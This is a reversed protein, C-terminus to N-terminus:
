LGKWDIVVPTKTDNSKMMSEIIMDTNFGDLVDPKGAVRRTLCDKFYQM